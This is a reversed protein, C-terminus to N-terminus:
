FADKKKEEKHDAKAAKATAGRWVPVLVRGVFLM